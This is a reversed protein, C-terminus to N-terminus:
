SRFHESQCVMLNTGKVTVFGLEAYLDRLKRLAKEHNPELKDLQLRARWEGKRPETAESQLPFPKMVFFDFSLMESLYTLTEQLVFKGLRQGRHKPLIELRSVYVFNDFSPFVDFPGASLAALTAKRLNPGFGQRSKFLMACEALEASHSDLIDFYSFGDSSVRQMNLLQCSLKGCLRETFGDSIHFIEGGIETIYDEPDGQNPLNAAFRLQIRYDDFANNM